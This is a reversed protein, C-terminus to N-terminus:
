NHGRKNATVSELFTRRRLLLKQLVCSYHTPLDIIRAERLLDEDPNNERLPPTSPLSARRARPDQPPAAGGGSAATFLNELITAVSCEYGNIYFCGLHSSCAFRPTLHPRLGGRRPLPPIPHPLAGGGLLM